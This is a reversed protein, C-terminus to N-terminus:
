FFLIRSLSREWSRWASRPVNLPRATCSHLALIRRLLFTTVPSSCVSDSFKNKKRGEVRLYGLSNGGNAGKGDSPSTVCDQCFNNVDAARALGELRLLRNLSKKSTQLNWRRRRRRSLNGAQQDIERGLQPSVVLHEAAVEQSAAEM